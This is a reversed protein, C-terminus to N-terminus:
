EGAAAIVQAKVTRSLYFGAETELREILDRVSLLLGKKKAILLVGM